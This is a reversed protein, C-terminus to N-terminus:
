WKARFGLAGNFSYSDSFNNLSTDIGSNAYVSYKDDRWSYNGNIGIGGWTRDTKTDLKIDSIRVVSDDIMEQYINVIGAVSARSLTGNQSYWSRGHDLSLGARGTLYQGKSLNIDVNWVDRFRDARLSSWLLQLQPIVSWRDSIAIKQGTEISLSYGRADKDDAISRSASSSYFDNNYWNM